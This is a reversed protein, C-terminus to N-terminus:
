DDKTAEKVEEVVEKAVDAIPKTVARTVDIVVEVPATAIDVIDKGLGLLSKFMIKGERKLIEKEAKTNNFAM